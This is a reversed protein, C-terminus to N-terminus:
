IRNTKMANMGKRTARYHFLEPRDSDYHNLKSAGHTGATCVEILGANHMNIIDDRIEGYQLDTEERITQFSETFILLELIKKESASIKRM